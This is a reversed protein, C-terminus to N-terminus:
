NLQRNSYLINRFFDRIRHVVPKPTINIEIPLNLSPNLPYPRSDPAMHHPSVVSPLARMHHHPREVLRFYAKPSPMEYLAQNNLNPLFENGEEVNNAVEESLLQPEDDGAEDAQTFLGSQDAMASGDSKVFKTSVVSESYPRSAGMPGIIPKWELGTFNEDIVRPSFVMKNELSKQDSKKDSKHDSKPRLQKDRFNDNLNSGIQAENSKNLSGDIQDSINQQGILGIRGDITNNSMQSDFTHNITPYNNFINSMKNFEIHTKNHLDEIYHVANLQSATESPDMSNTSNDWTKPKFYLERNAKPRDPASEGEIESYHVTISNRNGDPRQSDISRGNLAPRPPYFGKVPQGYVVDMTPLPSAFLASMEDPYENLDLAHTTQNSRFMKTKRGVSVPNVFLHSEVPSIHHAEVTNSSFAMDSMSPGSSLIEDTMPKENLKSIFDLSDDFAYGFNSLAKHKNENLNHVVRFNNVTSSNKKDGSFLQQFIHSMQRVKPVELGVSSGSFFNNLVGKFHDTVPGRRQAPIPRWHSESANVIDAIRFAPCLSSHLTLVVVARCWVLLSM